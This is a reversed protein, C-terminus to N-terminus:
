SRNGRQASRRPDIGLARLKRYLHTREMGVAESLKGVSGGARDLQYLLYEREFQERAERLPQDFSVQLQGAPTEMEAPQQQLQHEVEAATIEGDGGLVLLRQILNRLERENGPWSHNRLRNQASVSLPRYTLNEHDPFWDAYHRALEPVDEPRSRLPPIDLRLAALRHFLSEDFRDAAVADPLDPRGSAVIRANLPRPTRTGSVTFANAELVQDLRRQAAPPLNQVDPIFLWGDSAQALPGDAALLFADVDDGDLAAHDLTVVPGAAGALRHIHMALSRRGSGLEGLILIPASHGAAQEARQRLLQAGPSGGIPEHIAPDPSPARARASARDHELASRVTALLKALSLPKQVFDHAGLRTAEVATELTGHGSIMVVPCTPGGNDSWEKLLSVGDVDPMWIDLLVLDPSQQQYAQRAGDGNEAVAVVYGEDELIDRVLERIDPEDDVVLIRKASTM